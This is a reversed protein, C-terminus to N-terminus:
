RVPQQKFNAGAAANYTVAVLVQHPPRLCKKHTIIDGRVSHIKCRAVRSYRAVWGWLALPRQVIM